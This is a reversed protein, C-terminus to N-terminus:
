PTSQASEGARQDILAARLVRVTLAQVEVGAAAKAVTLPHMGLSRCSEAFGKTKLVKRLRAAETASLSDM